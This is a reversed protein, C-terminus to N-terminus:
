SHSNLFYKHGNYMTNEMAWFFFADWWWGNPPVEKKNHYMSEVKLQLFFFNQPPCHRIVNNMMMIDQNKKQKEWNLLKPALTPICAHKLSNQKPSEWLGKSRILSVLLFSLDKKRYRGKNQGTLCDLATLGTVFYVWWSIYMDSYMTIGYKRM